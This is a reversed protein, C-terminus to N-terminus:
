RSTFCGFKDSSPRRIYLLHASTCLRMYTQRWCPHIPHTGFKSKNDIAKGPKRVNGLRHPQRDKSLLLSFLRQGAPSLQPERSYPLLFTSFAKRMQKCRKKVRKKWGRHWTCVRVGATCHEPIRTMSHCADGRLEEPLHAFLRPEVRRLDTQENM